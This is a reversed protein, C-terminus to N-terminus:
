TGSAPRLSARSLPRLLRRRPGRPRAAPGAPAREAGCRTGSGPVGGGTLGGAGRRPAPAPKRRRWGPRGVGPRRAAPRPRRADRVRGPGPGGTPFGRPLRPGPRGGRRIRSRHSGGLVPGAAASGARRRRGGRPAGPDGGALGRRRAPRLGSRRRLPRLLLGRLEPDVGIRLAAPRHRRAPRGALVPVRRPSLRTRPGPLRGGRPPGSAGPRPGSLPPEGALLAAGGPRDPPRSFPGPRGADRAPAREGARHRLRLDRLVPRGRGVLAPADRSRPFPRRRAGGAVWGRPARPAVHGDPGRRRAPDPDRRPDGASGGGRPPRRGM